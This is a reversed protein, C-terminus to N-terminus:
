VVGILLKSVPILLKTASVTKWFQLVSFARQSTEGPQCHRVKGIDFFFHQAGGPLDLTKALPFGLQRTVFETTRAMDSSVLALHNLGEVETHPTNEAPSM